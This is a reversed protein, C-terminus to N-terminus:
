NRKPRGKAEAKATYPDEPWSHKPYRTRLEKRVEPYGNKWFSALDSTVQVPRYNPGLLHLQIPVAGKALKPSELWGFVEQIRVEVYPSREPPYHIKLRSGSPVVISEPAEQELTRRLEAPLNRVFSEAISKALVSSLKTEGFCVEELTARKTASLDWAEQTEKSELFSLRGLVSEVDPMVAIRDEWHDMCYDVLTEFAKDPHPRGVAPENLPLDHVMLARLEIVSGSTEDYTIQTRTEVADPYLEEIWERKVASAVSILADRKSAQHPPPEMSDLAVFFDSREVSSFQALEVGKGGIMLAARDGKRRRRAIRDPYGLLLLRMALEDDDISADTVRKVRLREGTRELQQAVRLVNQKSFRDLDIGRMDDALLHLRNVVDSEINSNRQLDVARRVFDKESLIAAIKAGLNTRGRKAAEILLRAPRVPLPLKLAEEGDPTLKSTATDRFGLDSLTRIAANLSATSPKEFWSFTEPESVGQSLLLLVAESLDARLIEPVDFDPMSAEDLKSWMRYCIGPAQRGARGARQTASALSIRSIQLRPFGAQDWKLTRAVGTDVVTGIGDLTLSTEAINTALVVRSKGPHPSLARNQEDLSLSGHLELCEFGARELPASLRERVGRIERTGPLFVLIDGLRKVKDTAVDLCLKAVEDQFSPGTDLSLPKIGNVVTVPHTRGPVKVIPADGLFAAIKEADITASMVIIRLDPRALQQLESLLSIALDTHQSREHFEDLIVTSVSALDPESQLHRNLLGETLIHLKTKASTKNEFRVQYGVEGGLEWNQEDAIRAASARAALRRPELMLIKKDAPVFGSQLLLPPFRTTKGAGPEAVLVLNRHSTLASSLSPWADDLPLKILTPKPPPM